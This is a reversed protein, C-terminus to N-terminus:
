LSRFFNCMPLILTGDGFETKWAVVHIYQNDFCIVEVSCFDDDGENDLIVRIPSGNKLTHELVVQGDKINFDPNLIIKYGEEQLMVAVKKQRTNM